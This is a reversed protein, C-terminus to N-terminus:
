RSTQNSQSFTQLLIHQVFFIKHFERFLYAILEFLKYYILQGININMIKDSTYKFHEQSRCGNWLNHHIPYFFCVLFVERDFTFHTVPRLHLCLPMFSLLTVDLAVLLEPKLGRPPCHLFKGLSHQNGGVSQLCAVRNIPTETYYRDGAWFSYISNHYSPSGAHFIPWILSVSWSGM